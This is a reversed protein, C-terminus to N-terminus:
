GGRGASARAACRRSPRSRGAAGLERRAAGGPAVSAHGVGRTAGRGRRHEVGDLGQPGGTSRHVALDGPVPCRDAENRGTSRAPSSATASRPEDRGPSSASSQPNDGAPTVLRTSRSTPWSRTTRSRPVSLSPRATTMVRVGAPRRLTSDNTSANPRVFGPQDVGQPSAPVPRWWGSSHSSTVDGRRAPAGASIGTRGHRAATRPLAVAARRDRPHRADVGPLLRASGRPVHPRPRPGASMERRAQELDGVGSLAMARYLHSWMQGPAHVLTAEALAQAPDDDLLRALALLWRHQGPHSPNLRFAERAYGEGVEWDGARCTLTAAALLVTPHHPACAAPRTVTDAALDYDARLLAVM